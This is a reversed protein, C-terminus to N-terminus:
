VREGCVSVLDKKCCFAPLCGDHDSNPVVPWVQTDVGDAVPEGPDDLLAPGEEQRAVRGHRACEDGNM